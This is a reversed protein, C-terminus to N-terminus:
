HVFPQSLAEAPLIASQFRALQRWDPHLFDRGVHKGTTDDGEHEQLAQQFKVNVQHRTLPKGNHREIAFCDSLESM